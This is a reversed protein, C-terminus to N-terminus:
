RRTTCNCTVHPDWVVGEQALVRLIPGDLVVALFGFESRTQNLAHPLLHMSGAAWDGSELFSNLADTVAALTATIEGLEREIRKRERIDEITAMIGTLRGAEDGLPATSISVPFREGARNIRQTEFGTIVEGKLTRELLAFQAEKSEEPLTLARTGVIEAQTWGFIREASPNWSTVRGECDAGVVAMPAAKVLAQFREQGRLRRLEDSVRLATFLAPACLIMLVSLALYAAPVFIGMGSLLWAPWNKGDAAAGAIQVTGCAAALVSMARFLAPQPLGEGIRVRLWRVVGAMALLFVGLAVGTYREQEAFPLTGAQPLGISLIALGATAGMSHFHGDLRAVIKGEV